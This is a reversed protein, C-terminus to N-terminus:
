LKLESNGDLISLYSFFINASINLFKSFPNHDIAFNGTMMIETNVAIIM